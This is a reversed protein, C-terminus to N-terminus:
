KIYYFKRTKFKVGMIKKKRRRKSLKYGFFKTVHTFLDFCMDLIATEGRVDRVTCKAAYAGMQRAQTWLRMQFWLKSLLWLATCVDGAAFIHELNTKM